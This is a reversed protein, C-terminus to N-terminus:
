PFRVREPTTLRAEPLLLMKTPLPLVMMLPKTVPEATECSRRILLLVPERAVVSQNCFAFLLKTLSVRISLPVRRTALLPARPRSLVEPVAISKFLPVISISVSAGSKLPRVKFM